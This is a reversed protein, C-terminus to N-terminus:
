ETVPSTARYAERLIQDISDKVATYTIKSTEKPDASGTINLTIPANMSLSTGGLPTYNKVPNLSPQMSISAQAEKISDNFNPTKINIGPIKNLVWILNDVGLKIAKIVVGLAGFKNILFDISSGFVSEGGTFYTYLDQIILVLGAVVAGIGLITLFLPSSVANFIAMAASAGKVAGTLGFFGNVILWIGSAIKIGQWVLFTAILIKVAREVGGVISSLAKFAKWLFTVVSILAKFIGVLTNFFEVVRQKIIEKNVKVYEILQDIYKSLAPLVASTIVIKLGRFLAMMMKFQTQFAESARIDDEGMIYGLEKAQEMFKKIGDSGLNLLPILETGSRGFWKVSLATKEVGDKMNAFRDALQMFASESSMGTRGLQKLTMAMKKFGIDLQEIPIDAQYAAYQIGQLAEEGIGFKQSSKAIAEGMETTKEITRVLAGLGLTSSMALYGISRMSSSIRNLGTDIKNLQAVDAKIGLTVFLDRISVGGAM